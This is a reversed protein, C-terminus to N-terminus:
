ALDPENDQMKIFERKLMERLEEPETDMEKLISGEMCGIFSYNKNQEKFIFNTNAYRRYENKPSRNTDSHVNNIFYISELSNPDLYCDLEANVIKVSDTDDSEESSLPQSVPEVQVTAESEKKSKKRPNDSKPDVTGVPRKTPGNEAAPVSADSADGQKSWSYEVLTFVALILDDKKGSVKKGNTRLIEKLDSKKFHKLDDTCTADMYNTIKKVSPAKKRRRKKKPKESASDPAASEPENTVDPVDANSEANSEATTAADKIANAADEKSAKTSLVTTKSTKSKQSTSLDVLKTDDDSSSGAMDNVVDLDFEMVENAMANLETLSLQNQKASILEMLHQLKQKYIKDCIVNLTQIWSAFVKAKKAKTKRISKVTRSKNSMVESTNFPLAASTNTSSM